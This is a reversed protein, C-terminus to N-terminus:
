FRPLRIERRRLDAPAFHFIEQWRAGGEWEKLLRPQDFRVTIGRGRGTNAEVVGTEGEFLYNDQWLCVVKVRTGVPFDRFTAGTNLAAANAQMLRTNLKGDSRYREGQLSPILQDQTGSWSLIHIDHLPDAEPLPDQGPRYGRASVWDGRQNKRVAPMFREGILDDIFRLVGREDDEDMHTHWTEFSLIFDRFLTEHVIQLQRGQGAPAPIALMANAVSANVSRSVKGRLQPYRNVVRQELADLRASQIRM